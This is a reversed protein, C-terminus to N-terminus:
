IFHSWLFCSETSENGVNVDFCETIYTIKPKRRQKFLIKARKPQWAAYIQLQKGVNRSLKETRNEQVEQRNFIPGVPQGPIEAVLLTRHTVVWFPLSIMRYYKGKMQCLDSLRQKKKEEDFGNM